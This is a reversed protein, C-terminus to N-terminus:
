PPFMKKLYNSLISIINKIYIWNKIKEILMNITMWDGTNSISKVPPIYFDCYLGEEVPLKREYAHVIKSVYLWNDIILEAKSRVYHGDQARIGAKFKERFDDQQQVASTDTVSEPTIDTIEGKAENISTILTKNNIVGEPWRVFPIGTTKYRAQIGGLRKEL